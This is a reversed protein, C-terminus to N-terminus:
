LVNRGLLYDTSVEFYDALKCLTDLNPERTGSEWNGVTSQVVGIEEAFKYQSMGNEERLQKLVIRFM